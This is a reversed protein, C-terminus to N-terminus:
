SYPSVNSFSSAIKSLLADKCSYSNVFFTLAIALAPAPTLLMGTSFHESFPITTKLVGPAFAFATFSSTKHAKNKDLRLITSLISHTLVKFSSSFTPFVASFPFDFKTPGSISPLFNPTM